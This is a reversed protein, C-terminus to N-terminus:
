ILQYSMVGNFGGTVSVMTLGEGSLSEFWGDNNAGTDPCPLPTGTALNMPGTLNTGGSSQFQVTGAATMSGQLAKCRVKKGAVGAVFSALTGAAAQIIAVSPM